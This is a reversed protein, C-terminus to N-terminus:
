EKLREAKQSFGAVASPNRCFLQAFAETKASQDARRFLGDGRGGTKGQTFKALGVARGRLPLGRRPEVWKGLRRQAGTKKKKSGGERSSQHGPSIGFATLGKVLWVIAFFVRGGQGAATSDRALLVLSAGTDTFRRSFVGNKEGSRKRRSTDAPPGSRGGETGRRDDGGGRGLPGMWIHGGPNTLHRLPHVNISPFRHPGGKRIGGEV